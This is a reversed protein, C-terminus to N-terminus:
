DNSKYLLRSHAKYQHDYFRKRNDATNEGLIPFKAFLADLQAAEPSSPDDALAFFDTISDLTQLNSVGLPGLQGGSDHYYKATEDLFLPTYYPDIISYDLTVSTMEPHGGYHQLSGSLAEELTVGTHSVAYSVFTSLKKPDTAFLAYNEVHDAIDSFMESRSDISWKGYNMILHEAVRERIGNVDMPSLQPGIHKDKLPPLDKEDAWRFWYDDKRKQFYDMAATADNAATKQQDLQGARFAAEPNNLHIRMQKEVIPDLTGLRDLEAFAATRGAVAAEAEIATRSKGAKWGDRYVKTIAAEIAQRAAMNYAQIENSKGATTDLEGSAVGVAVSLGHYLQALPGVKEDFLTKHGEDFARQQLTFEAAEKDSLIESLQRLEQAPINEEGIVWRSLRTRATSTSLAWDDELNKAQQKARALVSEMAANKEQTTGVGIQISLLDDTLATQMKSITASLEPAARSQVYKLTLPEFAAAIMRTGRVYEPSSQAQAASARFSDIMNRYKTIDELSVNGKEMAALLADNASAHDNKALFGTITTTVEPSTYGAAKQDSALVLQFNKRAQALYESGIENTSYRRELEAEFRKRMEEEPLNRPLGDLIDFGANSLAYNEEERAEMRKRRDREDAAAEAQELDALGGTLREALLQNDGLKAQGVMLDDAALLINRAEDFFASRDAKDKAIMAQAKKSNAAVLVANTLKIQIDPMGLARMEGLKAQIAENSGAPDSSLNVVISGLEEELKGERWAKLKASRLETASSMFNGDINQKYKAAEQRGFYDAFVPNQGYQENWVRTAVQEPSEQPEPMLNGNADEVVAFKDLETKLSTEYKRMQDRAAFEYIGRYFQPIYHEPIKKARALAALKDAAAKQDKNKLADTIDSAAETYAIGGQKLAEEGTKEAMASALNTFSKSLPALDLINQMEPAQIIPPAFTDVPSAIPRLEAQPQQGQVVYRQAM